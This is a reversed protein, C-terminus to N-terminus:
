ERPGHCVGHVAKGFDDVQQELKIKAKSLTNVKAKSLINYEEAQLNDLPSM